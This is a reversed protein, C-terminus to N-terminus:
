LRAPTTDPGLWVNDPKMKTGDRPVFGTRVMRKGGPPFQPEAAGCLPLLLGPKPGPRGSCLRREGRHAWAVERGPWRAAGGGCWRPRELHCRCVLINQSCGNNTPFQWSHLFRPVKPPTVLEAGLWWREGRGKVSQHRARRHAGARHESSPQPGARVCRVTKGALSIDTRCGCRLLLATCLAWARSLREGGQARRRGDRAGDDRAEHKRRPHGQARGGLVWGM